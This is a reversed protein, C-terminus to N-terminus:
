LGCMLRADATRSQRNTPRLVRVGSPDEYVPATLGLIVTAMPGAFATLLRYQDVVLWTDSRSTLLECLQRTSTIADAGVWYDVLRGDDAPLAYSWTRVSEAPGALFRLHTRDGLALYAPAPLPVVVPDDAGRWEVIFDMAAAYDPDTIPNDFRAVLGQILNAMIIAVAALAAIRPAWADRWATGAAWGRHGLIGVALATLILGFPYINLVYRSQSESTFFGIELIPLWFLCLLAGVAPRDVRDTTAAAGLFCRGILLGSCITLLEPMLGAFYDNRFLSRWVSISPRILTEMQLFSDSALLSGSVSGRVTRPEPGFLVNLGALLVPALASLVFTAALDRHRGFPFGNLLFLAVLVLPPWLLVAGPHTFTALWFLTVFAALARWREGPAQVLARLFVWALGVTLAQLLAYMRINASWQISVPDFALFAAALLALWSSGTVLWGLRYTLYIAVCGIAVNVLRLVDLDALGDYGLWVLPALLYSVVTGHLYLTGSPLIPLGREAVAIAALLTAPEDVQMTLVEAARWRLVLGVAVLLGVILPVSRARLWATLREEGASDVGVGERERTRTAEAVAGNRAL